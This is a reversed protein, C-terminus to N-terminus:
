MQAVQTMQPDGANNKETAEADEATFREKDKKVEAKLL